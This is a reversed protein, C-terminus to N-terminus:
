FGIDEMVAAMQDSTLTSQRDYYDKSNWIEVRNLVGTIVIDKELNAYARLAPPISVRGQANIEPQAAASFFFRQLDRAKSFSQEKMKTEFIKWEEESLVWLCNDIGRTIFFDSGLELRLKKPMIIRGKEDINNTFEGILM